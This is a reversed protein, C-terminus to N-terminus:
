CDANKDSNEEEESSSKPIETDDSEESTSNEIEKEKGKGKSFSSKIQLGKKKKKLLMTLMDKLDNISQQQAQIMDYQERQVRIQEEFRRAVKEPTSAM